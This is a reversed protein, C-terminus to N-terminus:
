KLLPRVKWATARVHDGDPIGHFAFARLNGMDVPGGHRLEHRFQAVQVDSCTVTRV